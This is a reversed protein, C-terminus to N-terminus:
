TVLNTAIWIINRGTVNVPMLGNRPHCPTTGRLEARIIRIEASRSVLRSTSGLSIKSRSSASWTALSISIGSSSPM